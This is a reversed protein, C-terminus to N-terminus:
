EAQRSKGTLKMVLRFTFEEYTDEELLIVPEAEDTMTLEEQGPAGIQPIWWQKGSSSLGFCRGQGDVVFSQFTGAPVVIQQTNSATHLDQFTVGNTLSVSAAWSIGQVLPSVVHKYQGDDPNNVFFQNGNTEGGHIWITGDADQTIFERGVFTRTFGEGSLDLNVLVIQADIDQPTEITEDSVTRTCAGTLDITDVTVDQSLTDGTNPNKTSVTTEVTVTGTVAYDWRDGPEMQRVEATPLPLSGGNGGGGCGALVGLLVVLCGLVIRRAM